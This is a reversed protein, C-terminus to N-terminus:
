PQATYRNYILEVDPAIKNLIEKGSNTLSLNVRRGDKADVFRSIYQDKELKGIIRSLSPALICGDFGGQRADTEGKERVVKVM